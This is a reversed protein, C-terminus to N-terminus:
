HWFPVQWPLGSTHGSGPGHPSGATQAGGFPQTTVGRGLYAAIQKWSDLRDRRWESPERVGGSVEDMSSLSEGIPTRRDLPM